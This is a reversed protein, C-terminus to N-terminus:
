NLAGAAATRAERGLRHLHTTRRWRVDPAAFRRPEQRHAPTQPIHTRQATEGTRRPKAEGVPQLSRVRRPGVDRLRGQGHQERHETPEMREAVGHTVCQHVRRPPTAYHGRKAPEPPALLREYHNSSSCSAPVPLPPEATFESAPFIATTVPPAEPFPAADARSNACAPAFTIIPSSCSPYLTAFSIPPEYWFVSTRRASSTCPRM